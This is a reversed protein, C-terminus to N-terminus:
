HNTVQRSTIYSIIYIVPHPVFIPNQNGVNSPAKNEDAM